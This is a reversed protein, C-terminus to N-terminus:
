SETTAKGDNNSHKKREHKTNKITVYIYATSNITGFM